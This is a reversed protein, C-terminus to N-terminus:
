NIQQFPFFAELKIRPKEKQVHVNVNIQQHCTPYMYLYTPLTPLHGPPFLYLPIHRLDKTNTPTKFKEKRRCTTESIHLYKEM